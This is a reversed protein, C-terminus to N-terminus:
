TTVIDVNLLEKMRKKEDDSLRNIINMLKADLAEQKKRRNEEMRAFCPATGRSKEEAYLAMVKEYVGIHKLWEGVEYYFNCCTSELVDYHMSDNVLENVFEEAFDNPVDVMIQYDGYESVTGKRRADGCASGDEYTCLFEREINVYGSRSWRTRHCRMSVIKGYGAFVFNLNIKPQQADPWKQMVEAYVKMGVFLEKGDISMLPVDEEWGQYDSVVELIEESVENNHKLYAKDGCYERIELTYYKSLDGNKDIRWGLGDIVYERDKVDQFKPADDGQIVDTWKPEATLRVRDGISYKYYIKNM